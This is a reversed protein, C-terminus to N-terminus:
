RRKRVHRPPPCGDANYGPFAERERPAKYRREMVGMRLLNDKSEYYILLTESPKDEFDYYVETTKFEKTRGYGTGISQQPEPQSVLGRTASKARTKSQYAQTSAMMNAAIPGSTYEEGVSASATMTNTGISDLGSYSAQLNVNNLSGQPSAGNYWVGGIFPYTHYPYDYWWKRPYHHHEHIITTNPISVPKPKENYVLCGIVGINRKEGAENQQNYSGKISSFEFSKVESGNHRWGPVEIDGWPEVVYARGWTADGTMVNLGDVSLVIKKRTSSNNKFYLTYESGKRGEVYVKGDHYYQDITRGKVRVQLTSTM